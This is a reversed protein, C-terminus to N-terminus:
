SLLRSGSTLSKSGGGLHVRQGADAGASYGSRSSTQGVLQVKGFNESRKTYAMEVEERDRDVVALAISVPNNTPLDSAQANEDAKAANSQAKLRRYIVHSAGIRFANKWSKANEEKECSRASPFSTRSKWADTVLREIENYLYQCTYNWSQVASVRGLGRIQGGIYFMKVGFALAAGEAVFCKWAVRNKSVQTGSIVDETIEEATRTTDEVRLSAESIEYKHMLEAARAAATAAEHENSSKSLSLLKQIKEIVPNTM